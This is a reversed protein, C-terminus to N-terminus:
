PSNLKFHLHPASSTTTPVTTGWQALMPCRHQAAHSTQPQAHRRQILRPPEAFTTERQKSEGGRGTKKGPSPDMGM